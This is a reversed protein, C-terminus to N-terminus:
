LYIIKMFSFHELNSLLQESIWFHYRNSAENISVNILHAIDAIHWLRSNLANISKFASRMDSASDSCFAIVDSWQKDYKDLVNELVVCKQLMTRM